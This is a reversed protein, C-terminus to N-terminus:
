KSVNTEVKSIVEILAPSGEKNAEQARKFASSLIEPKEVRESYAGIGRGIESYNGTLKNSNFNKSATPMHKDYGTMHGNNLVVTTIPIQSRVATELDLGTMGFAAEGMVNVVHKNPKAIKAGIALGLGLGLQTSKGWALYSRPIPAKWMPIMQDRPYGSDHTIITDKPPFAKEIERIVRYPSIPIENSTLHSEWYLEFEKRIESLSDIQYHSHLRKKIGEQRRYEECLQRLVLKADGVAGLSIPYDKGIDESVNTIQCLNVNEPMSTTFTNKTFSTGIGLIFDTAELAHTVPLPRTLGGTGLSLNHTEPFATKGALTTMVPIQALEAFEVLERTAQSYLIGQGANIIPYKATLLTRIIEGVDETSASSLHKNIPTYQFKGNYTKRMIDVPMEILVPGLRGNRIKGTARRLMQPIDNVDHIQAAWKTIHEHSRVAQFSPHIGRRSLPEGGALHLLPVSDAFSQAVGAFANEAGPGQQMTFVGFPNGNKVRSYGDAIGVGVREQRCIVPRIGIKSCSDILQQMPFASIFDIGEQSLIQALVDYGNM